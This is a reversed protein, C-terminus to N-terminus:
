AAEEAVVEAFVIGSAVDADATLTSCHARSDVLYVNYGETEAYAKSYIVDDDMCYTFHCDPFQGRLETLTQESLGKQDVYDLIAQLSHRNIM